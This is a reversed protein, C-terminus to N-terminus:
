CWFIRGGCCLNLLLNALFLRICFNDSMVPRGYEQSTTRYMGGRAGLSAYLMRYQMNQPNMQCATAAFERAQILDGMGQKCIAAYYFWVDTKQRVSELCSWARAYDRANLYATAQNYAMQDNTDYGQSAQGYGGYSQQNTYSSNYSSGNKRMDMISKYANQVQKFKETYLDQNPDGINADPHYKKSLQRYAKKVEDDSAGPSVGLIDYPNM